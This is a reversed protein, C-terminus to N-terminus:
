EELDCQCIMLIYPTHCVTMSRKSSHYFMSDALLALLYKFSVM